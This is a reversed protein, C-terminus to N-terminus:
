RGPRRARVAAALASLRAVSLAFLDVTGRVAARRRLGLVFLAIGPARRTGVALLYVAAVPARWLPLHRAVLYAYNWEADARAQLSPADRADDDYRAAPFHAVRVGPDYVFRWGERRARLCLGVEWHVQAGEGRLAHDLHWLERRLSMNVGKLVHVERASGRGLHHNGHLRGFWTLRGVVPGASMAGPEMGEIFDRGGVGGIGPAYGARLRELWDPYPEADDDTHAVVDESCRGLGAEIAAIAGSKRVVVQDFELVQARLRPLVAATEEDGARAIVVVREAAVTQRALARLCRELSEPRRFTPVVVAVTLETM